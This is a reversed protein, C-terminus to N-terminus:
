TMRIEAAGLTEFRASARVPQSLPYQGTYSGCTVLDGAALPHGQRCFTNALWVLLRCPDAPNGGRTEVVTQEDIDLRALLEPISAASWDPAGAGIVFFANNQLDALQSLGDASAAPQYRSDIVEIAAHASAVTSLVEDRDHQKSGPPLAEGIRFAVEAEIAPAFFTQLPVEAPSEAVLPAPMPAYYAQDDRPGSAGVKWASVPGIREAFAKQVAYAQTQTRPRCDEPLGPLQERTWLAQALADAAQDAWDTM